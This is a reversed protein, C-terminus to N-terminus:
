TLARRSVSTQRPAAMASPQAEEMWDYDIAQAADRIMVRYWERQRPSFGEVIERVRAPAARQNVRNRLANDVTEADYRLGTLTTLVSHTHTADAMDEIRVLV